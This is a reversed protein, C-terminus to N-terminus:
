IYSRDFAGETTDLAFYCKSTGIVEKLLSCRRSGIGDHNLVAKVDEALLREGLVDLGPIVEDLEVSGPASM